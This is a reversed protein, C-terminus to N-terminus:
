CPVERQAACPAPQRPGPLPLSFPPRALLVISCLSNALRGQLLRGHLRLLHFVALARCPASRAATVCNASRGHRLRRHLRLLPFVALTRCPVSRAAPKFVACQAPARLPRCVALLNASGDDMPLSILWEGPLPSACPFGTGATICALAGGPTTLTALFAPCRPM